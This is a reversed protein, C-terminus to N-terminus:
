GTVLQRSGYGKGNTLQGSKLVQLSSNPSLFDGAFHPLISVKVDKMLYKPFLWNTPGMGSDIPWSVWSLSIYTMAHCVHGYFWWVWMTRHHLINSCLWNAPGIGSSNPWSVFRTYKYTCRAVAEEASCSGISSEDQIPPQWVILESSGYGRCHTLQCFELFQWDEKILEPIHMQDSQVSEEGCIRPSSGISPLQEQPPSWNAMTRM